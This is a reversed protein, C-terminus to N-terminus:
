KPRNTGLPSILSILDGAFILQNVTVLQFAFQALGRVPKFLFSCGTSGVKRSSRFIVGEDATRFKFLFPVSISSSRDALPIYTSAHCAGVSRHIDGHRLLHM